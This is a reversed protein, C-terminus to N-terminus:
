AAASHGRPAAARNEVLEREDHPRKREDTPLTGGLAYMVLNGKSSPLPRPVRMRYVNFKGGSIVRSQRSMGADKKFGRM